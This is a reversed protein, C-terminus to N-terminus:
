RLNSIFFAESPFSSAQVLLNTDLNLGPWSFVSLLKANINVFPYSRLRIVFSFDYSCYSIAAQKSGAVIAPHM